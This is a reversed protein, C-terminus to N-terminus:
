RECTKCMRKELTVFRQLATLVDTGYIYRAKEYHIKERLHRVDAGYEVEWKQLAM